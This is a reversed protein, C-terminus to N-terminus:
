EGTHNNLNGRRRYQPSAWISFADDNIQRYQTNHRLIQKETMTIAGRPLTTRVVGNEACGLLYWCGEFYCAKRCHTLPITYAPNQLVQGFRVWQKFSFQVGYREYAREKAHHTFPSSYRKIM